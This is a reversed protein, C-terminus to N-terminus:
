NIVEQYHRAIEQDKPALRYAKKLYEIAKQKNGLKLMILAATDLVQPQNNDIVLARDALKNASQYNGLEYEVWALNNLLSIDNPSINLLKTYESKALKKDFQVANEALLGRVISDEPFSAVHKKIFNFAAEDHKMKKLTAFLLIANSTNPVQEYLVKLGPIAKDYEAETLWIKSQLGRALPLSQQVANLSSLLEQAQIYEKTIILFHTKLLKLDLDEYSVKLASNTTSLAGIFNKMKEQLSIKRLWAVRYEPQIKLWSNFIDLAKENDGTEIYSDGLLVWHIPTILSTDDINKLVDIVEKYDKEIFLVKSYLIQYKLNDRNEVYAAKIRSIAVDIKDLAKYAKYQLSLGALHNPLKVLLKEVFIISQDYKKETLAKTSFYLLSYPNNENIDLAMSLENEALEVENKLLLVKATLNYGEIQNPDTKKWQEALMLAKDYKKNQIYASALAYKAIPLDPSIESAKELDAIGELDNMSLKLIGIKAMDQPNSTRIDNTKAVLAKAEQVKGAKLLEFSATTLLTIDDATAGDMIRLTQSAESSYGLKLQVVALVKRVPHTSTLSESITILFHHAREYQELQFASLGAIIRNSPVNLGNQIAKDTYLLANQYDGKQYFVLGKLQNTFPHEPVLKLLFDLHKDAESYQENRIYSNALFLRIQINSPLLRHFENFTSIAKEFDGEIFLLQGKLILAETLEPTKILVREILDLAGGRNTSEAMLYAEGLQSYVSESSTESARDIIDKAKENDGLRIYALAKYLSIEALVNEPIPEVQDALALVEENKDQLNLTKFLKPLILEKSGNLELSRRLEKEAAAIDGLELYLKGLLFRSESNTLDILVANKLELIAASNKGNAVHTKASQIYEEATKKPSCATLSFVVCITLALKKNFEM